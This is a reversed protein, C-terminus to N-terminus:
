LFNFAIALSLLLVNDYTITIKLSIVVSVLINDYTLTIKLLGIILSIIIMLLPLIM